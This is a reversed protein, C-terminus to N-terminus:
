HALFLLFVGALVGALAFSKQFIRVEGFLIAGALFSVITSGSRVASILSILAGECNIAKFYAIDAITLLVGILPISWRWQFVTFGSRKPLWFLLLSVGLLPVMYACFWVQVALPNIKLTQVLYKDMLSSVASLLVAIFLFIVWKNTHFVIGERGSVLSFIYYSIFLIGFAGWQTPTLREGFILIAGLLTWAPISAAIPAAVSIPLHKMSFYALLWLTGVLIAKLFLLIHGYLNVPPVFLGLRTLFAPAFQSLLVLPILLLTEALVAFFLVPLVANDRLAIKRSIDYLGLLVASFAGLYLWM